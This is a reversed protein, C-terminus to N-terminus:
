KFYKEEADSQRFANYYQIYSYQKLAESTEELGHWMGEKDFYGFANIAPYEEMLELLFRDYSSIECNATQLLLPRLYNTSILLDDQEEIDFNAWILFDTFYKKQRIEAPANEIYLVDKAM